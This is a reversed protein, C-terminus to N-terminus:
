GGLTGVELIRTAKLTRVQLTLYKGQAASVAINLLGAAKSEELTKELVSDNKLLFKNHYQWNEILL